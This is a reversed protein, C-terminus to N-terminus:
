FCFEVASSIVKVVYIEVHRNDAPTRAFIFIFNLVTAAILCALRFSVVMILMTWMRAKSNIM